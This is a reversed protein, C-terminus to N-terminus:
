WNYRAMGKDACSRTVDSFEGRFHGRALFLPLLKVEDGLRGLPAPTPPAVDRMNICKVVTREDRTALWGGRGM